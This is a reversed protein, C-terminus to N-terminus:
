DLLKNGREDLFKKLDRIHLDIDAIFIKRVDKKLFNEYVSLFFKDVEGFRGGQRILSRYIHSSYNEDANLLSQFKKPTQTVEDFKRRLKEPLIQNSESSKIMAKLINICQSEEKNSNQIM